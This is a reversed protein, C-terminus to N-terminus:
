PNRYPFVLLTMGVFIDRLGTSMVYPLAHDNADIGFKKSMPKPKLVAGLGVLVALSGILATMNHLDM